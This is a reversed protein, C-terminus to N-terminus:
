GGTRPLVVVAEPAPRYIVDGADEWTEGRLMRTVVRLTGDELLEQSARVETIGDANGTVFERSHLVGDEDFEMTGRTFFGATTFYTYTLEEAELDWMVFTEGGYEGDRVSHTIRIVRGALAPEWLVIDGAGTDADFVAKWPTDLYPEFAALEPITQALAPAAGFPTLLVLSLAPVLARTNM